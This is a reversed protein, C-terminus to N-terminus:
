ESAHSSPTFMFIAVFRELYNVCPYPVLFVSKAKRWTVKHVMKNAIFSSHVLRRSM